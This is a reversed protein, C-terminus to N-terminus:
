LHKAEVNRFPGHQAPHPFRWPIRIPCLSPRGKQAIMPFGDSRHIEKGHRREGEARQIAEKDNRMISPSNEAAMHRLM